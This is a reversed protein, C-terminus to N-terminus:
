LFDNFSVVWIEHVIVLSIPGELSCGFIRLKIVGSKCFRVLPFPQLFEMKWHFSCSGAVKLIKQDLKKIGIQVM